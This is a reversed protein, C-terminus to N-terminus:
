RAGGTAKAIAASAETLIWGHGPYEEHELANCANKLAELLEPAAAILRANATEREYLRDKVEQEIKYDKGPRSYDWTRLRTVKCVSYLENSCAGHYIGGFETEGESGPQPKARIVNVNSDYYWPGPTHSM